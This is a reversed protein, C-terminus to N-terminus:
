RRQSRQHLGSAIAPCATAADLALFKQCDPNAHDAQEATTLKFKLTSITDQYQDAKRVLEAQTVAADGVLDRWSKVAKELKTISESQTENAGVATALKATLAGNHELLDTREGWLWKTTGAFTLLLIGCIVVAIAGFKGGIFGTIAGM